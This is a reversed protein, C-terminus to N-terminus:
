LAVVLVDLLHEQPVAALAVVLVDLLDAEAGPRGRTVAALGDRRVTPQGGRLGVDDLLAATALALRM